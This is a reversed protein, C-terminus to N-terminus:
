KLRLIRHFSGFNGYVATVNWPLKYRWHRRNIEPFNSAQEM